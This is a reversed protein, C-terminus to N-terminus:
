NSLLDKNEYINWIIEVDKHYKIDLLYHLMSQSTDKMYFCWRSFEIIHIHWWFKVIDNEFIEKGNIDKLGTYQTIVCNKNKINRMCDVNTYHCRWKNVKDWARFKIERMM